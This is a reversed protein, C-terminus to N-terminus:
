LSLSEAVERAPEDCNLFRDEFQCITYLVLLLWMVSWQENM